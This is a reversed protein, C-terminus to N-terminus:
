KVYSSVLAWLPSLVQGLDYLLSPASGPSGSAMKQSGQLCGLPPCHTHSRLPIDPPHQLLQASPPGSWPRSHLPCERPVQGAQGSGGCAWTCPCISRPRSSVSAGRCGARSGQQGGRRGGRGTCGSRHWATCPGAACTPARPWRHHTRGGGPVGPGVSTHDPPGPDGTVCGQAVGHQGRPQARGWPGDAAHLRGWGLRAELVTKGTAERAGADSDRM